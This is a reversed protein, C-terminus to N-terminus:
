RLTFKQVVNNETDAVLVEDRDPNVAFGLPKSFPADAGRLAFHFLGSSASASSAPRQRRRSRVRLREQQRNRAAGARLARVGPRRGALQEGPGTWRSSRSSVARGSCSSTGSVTGPGASRSWTPSSGGAAASFGTGVRRRVTRISDFIQVRENGADLVYINGKPTSPSTGPFSSIVPAPASVAGPRPWRSVSAMRIPGPVGASTGPSGVSREVGIEPDSPKRHRRCLHVRSQGRRDGRSQQVGRHEDGPATSGWPSCSIRSITSCRSGTTAPTSCTSTATRTRPSM